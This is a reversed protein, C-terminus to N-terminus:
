NGSGPPATIAVDGNWDALTLFIEGQPGTSEIRLPYPNEVNDAVYLTAQGQQPRLKVADQGGVKGTGAKTFTQKGGLLNELLTNKDVERALKAAQPDKTTLKQYEPGPPQGPLGKAYLTDGVKIISMTGGSSTIEEKGDGRNTLLLDVKGKNVGQSIDGTIHVSEANRAATRADNIIQDAPKDAQRESGCAALSLLLALSGAAATIRLAM